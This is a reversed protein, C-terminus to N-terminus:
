ELEEKTKGNAITKSKLIDQRILFELLKSKGTGTAGLIYLHRLLESVSENDIVNQNKSSNKYQEVFHDNLRRIVELCHM